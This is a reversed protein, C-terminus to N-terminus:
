TECYGHPVAASVLLAVAFSLVVALPWGWLLRRPRQFSWVGIITYVALQAVQAATPAASGSRDCLSGSTAIAYAGIFAVAATAGALGAALVVWGFGLLPHLDPWLLKAAIAAAGALVAFAAVGTLVRGGVYEVLFPSSPTGVLVALAATSGGVRRRDIHVAM